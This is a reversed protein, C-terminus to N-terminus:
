CGSPTLNARRDPTLKSRRNVTTDSEDLRYIALPKRRPGPNALHVAMLIELWAAVEPDVASEAALWRRVTNRHEGTRRALERESWGLTLLCLALRYPSMPSPPTHGFHVRTAHGASAGAPQTHDDGFGPDLSEIREM